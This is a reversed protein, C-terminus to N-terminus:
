QNTGKQTLDAVLDEFAQVFPEFSVMSAEWTSQQTLDMGALRGVEEVSSITTATLLDDYRTMFSPGEEQAMRYLAAAFLAGFAYPYNYFSLGASYYHPKCAWMYPHLSSEELGDGYATKQARVMIDQLEKSDLSETGVRDFVEGEFLFRSLIDCIVQGSNMLFGDLLGLKELPDQSAELAELLFHTENFISATEAVPMTYSLNLPAHDEIRSGHYAHGLEHALTSIGSFSGEFNTLVRSAKIFSLNSCFAGGVKGERPYFDIWAERYARDILDAIPPHLKQFSDVLIQRSDEVSYGSSLKGIPAFMDAWHLSEQGLYAAKAKFYRVFVEKKDVMAGVMADLSERSMRSKFLAEDLPSPHGRRGSMYLVQGKIAGLAAALSKEISPYLALEAEYAKRRVRADPDYALNRLQTLTKKDGDLDGTATSTLQRFLHNWAGPGYIDLRAALEEMEAELLYDAERQKEELLFRYPALIDEKVMDDLDLGAVLRTLRVQFGTFVAMMGRVRNLLATTETLGTDASSLLSLYSALRRVGQSVEESLRIGAKVKDLDEGEQDLLTRSEQIQGELTKFDEEIQPDDLGQYLPSLDWLGQKEM